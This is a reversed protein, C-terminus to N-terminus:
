LCANRQIWIIFDNVQDGNMKIDFSDGDENWAEIVLNGDEDFSFRIGNYINYGRPFLESAGCYKTENIEFTKSMIKNTGWVPSSGTLMKM